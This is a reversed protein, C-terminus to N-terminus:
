LIPLFYILNFEDTVTGVAIKNLISIHTAHREAVVKGIPLIFAVGLPSLKDKRINLYLTLLTNLIPISHLDVELFKKSM